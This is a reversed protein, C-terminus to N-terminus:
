PPVYLIDDWTIDLCPISNSQTSVVDNLLILLEILTLVLSVIFKKLKLRESHIEQHSFNM